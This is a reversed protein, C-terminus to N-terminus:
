VRFASQRVLNRGEFIPAIVKTLTMLNRLRKGVPTRHLGENVCSERERERLIKTGEDSGAGVLHASGRGRTRMCQRHHGLRRGPSCTGACTVPTTRSPAQASDLTCQAAAVAVAVAGAGLATQMRRPRGHVHRRQNAACM